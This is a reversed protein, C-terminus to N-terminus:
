IKTPVILVSIIPQLGNTQLIVHVDEQGYSFPAFKVLCRLCNNVKEATGVVANGRNYLHLLDVWIFIVVVM